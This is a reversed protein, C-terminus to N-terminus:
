SLKNLEELGESLSKRIDILRNILLQKSEEKGKKTNIEHRAGELTYGKEKVLHYILRIQDINKETYLRDGKRNKTPQLSSFEEEWFRLLSPNVDFMKSAESITFYRKAQEYLIKTLIDL